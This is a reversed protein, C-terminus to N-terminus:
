GPHGEAPEAVTVPRHGLPQVPPTALFRLLASNVRAPREDQPLDGANPVLLFQAAPALVRFAHAHEVSNQSAQEGWILLVPQHLRKLSARIDVNLRGSVFAKVAHRGGPQRASAVYSEVLDDTVLRDDSYVQELFYRVSASSTLANYLTSGLVPVDLSSGAAIRPTSAGDRLQSVGTPGVLALATFVRPNRVASAVVHAATLSSAVVASAGGGLQDALEAIMSQILAPSYRLDPRDSRGFGLLDVAFVEHREALSRVTHRWELSSAGAYIGHLLLVPSGAGHRTYSLRHGRWRIEEDEGGLVNELPQSDRATAANYLAALGFAAGSAAAAKRWQKAM